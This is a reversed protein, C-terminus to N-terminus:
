IQTLNAISKRNKQNLCDITTNLANKSGQRFIEVSFAWLALSSNSYRIKSQQRSDSLNAFLRSLGLQQLFRLL